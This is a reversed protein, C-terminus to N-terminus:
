AWGEIDFVFSQSDKFRVLRPMRLEGPVLWKSVGIVVHPLDRLLRPESLEICVVKLICLLLCLGPLWIDVLLLLPLM